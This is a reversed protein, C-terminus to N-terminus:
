WRRRGEGGGIRRATCGDGTPLQAVDGEATTPRAEAATAVAAEVCAPRRLMWDCRRERGGCVDAELRTEGRWGGGGGGGHGRRRWRTRPVRRGGEGAAALWWGGGGGALDPTSGGSGVAPLGSGAAAADSGGDGHRTMLRAGRAPGGDVRPSPAGDPTPRAAAM